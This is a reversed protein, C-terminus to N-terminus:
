KLNYREEKQLEKVDYCYLDQVLHIKLEIYKLARAIQVDLDWYSLYESMSTGGFDRFDNARVFGPFEELIVLDIAAETNKAGAV